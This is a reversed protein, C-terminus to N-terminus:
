ARLHAICVASPRTKASSVACLRSTRTTTHLGDRPPVHLHAPAPVPSSLAPAALFRGRLRTSIDQRAARLPPRPAALPDLCSPSPAQFLSVPDVLVARAGPRTLAGQHGAPGSVFVVHLSHPPSSSLSDLRRGPKGAVSGAREQEEEEQQSARARVMGGKVLVKSSAAVFILIGATPRPDTERGGHWRRAPEGCQRTAEVRRVCFM